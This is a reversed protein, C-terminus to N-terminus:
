RRVIIAGKAETRRLPYAWHARGLPVVKTGMELGGKNGRAQRDRSLLGCSSKTETSRM